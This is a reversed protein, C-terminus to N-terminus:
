GCTANGRRVGGDGRYLQHRRIYAIVPAPVLYRISRGEALRRRIDSASIQVLHVEIMRPPWAPEPLRGGPWRLEHGPRGVVALRCLRLLEGVDKWLHLEELSDAGIILWLDVGPHRRRFHRVTDITFSPGQRRAEFWCLRMRPDGRIALRVMECRYEVPAMEAPTKHPSCSAPVWYLRDLGIQEVADSAAM